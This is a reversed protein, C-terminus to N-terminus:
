NFHSQKTALVGRLSMQFRSGESHYLYKNKLIYSSTNTFV